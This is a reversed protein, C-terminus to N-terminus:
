RRGRTPSAPGQGGGRRGGATGMRRRPRTPGEAGGRAVEAAPGWEFVTRAREVQEYRLAQRGGPLESGELVFGTEGAEALRGRLRREGAAVEPLLRVSVVEGVARQFHRPTRLPRELGPTTVELTYRQGPFPDQRDLVASVARTAEALRDLDAPQQAGDVVVRLLGPRREVEVLELGVAGVPSALVAEIGEDGV